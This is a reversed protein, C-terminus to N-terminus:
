NRCMSTYQMSCSEKYVNAQLQDKHLHQLRDCILKIHRYTYSEIHKSILDKVGPMMDDTSAVARLRAKATSSSCASCQSSGCNRCFHLAM